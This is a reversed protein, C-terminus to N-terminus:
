RIGGARLAIVARRAERIAREAGRRRNELMALQADHVSRENCLQLLWAQALQPNGAMCRESLGACGSAREHYRAYVLAELEDLQDLEREAREIAARAAALDPDVTPAVTM